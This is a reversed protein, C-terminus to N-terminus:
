TGAPYAPRTPLPQTPDGSAASVIARLAKRYVAWEPPVAVGNEVCRLVTVDSLDLADKASAQHDGWTPVIAPAAPATFNAGDYIWGIGVESGDPIQVASIGQPPSWEQEGDWVVLNTVLAKDILAYHTM